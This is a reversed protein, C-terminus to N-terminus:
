THEKAGAAPPESVLGIDKPGRFSFVVCEFQVDHAQYYEGIARLLEDRGLKETSWFNCCPVPITPRVLAAQAVGRLAEDSHLGVILDCYTAM